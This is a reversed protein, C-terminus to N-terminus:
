PGPALSKVPNRLAAKISQYSVTLLTVVLAGVGSFAFIWWSLATRYTYKQLWNDLFFYAIPTAIFFSVIVLQVFDKSLLGTLNIVSAGLVKRIGIEKTRQEAMFSALGFLGFCSILIALVSFLYALKGIREENAFKHAYEQDVFKYEFPVAPAIKNFIEQIQQLAQHISIQPNIKLLIYRKNGRLSFIAPRVKEFPSSMVMDKVVGLITYTGKQWHESRIIQGVPNKLGMLKVASENVILGSSDSSFKRSFDRGAVFQWGVAKGYEYSVRLTGFDDKIDPTKGVWEFGTNNSGQSTLESGSEAVEVVAGSRILENRLVEEKGQLGNKPFTLLGDSTYGLPRNKAIQIQRYVVWTGIILMISITFQVVVLVKRSLLASRGGCFVGKLIRIPQLSALYFAPYLGALLATFLAFGLSLLWFSPDAWLIAIEKDAVQNFWPLILVILGIGLILAFATIMVAENLFQITLQSRLSGMAKRIGVEKARKESRATSLNAFNICALLLVFLGITAYFIIYEFAESTVNVGNKFSSYLHWKNMPHLFVEPKYRAKEANLHPLMINKIRASVQEFSRDPAIQVYTPFSNDGWNDQAAKAWENFTLYLEFPAIYSVGMFESNNPFDQYVGTVTANIQTDILVIQNIPNIDGFLKQALTESLLINHLEQLGARSGRIMKLSLLEPSGAQMFRGAQTFKKDAGAIIYNVTETSTVVHIFDEKFTDLLKRGLPMPSSQGGTEKRGNYWEHRMVQAIHEYNDHSQNFTMEDHIWLGILIAVAMGVALGVINIFSYSKNKTLNRWAILFYNQLM